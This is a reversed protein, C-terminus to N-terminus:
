AGLRRSLYGTTDFQVPAALANGQMQYPDFRAVNMQPAQPRPQPAPMAAALANQPMQAQDMQVGPDPMGGGSFIDAERNRRKTNVGENHSALARIASSVDGGDRFAATVGRLGRDWAGAGYNYALSDLVAQQQPALANYTEAGIARVASPRFESNIRRDLDRIADERSVSMGQRIPVIRGDATTMTDSGFGARYANVDWYPSARFGEFDAILNASSTM